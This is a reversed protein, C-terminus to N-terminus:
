ATHNCFRLFNGTSTQSIFNTHMHADCVNDAHTCTCTHTHIHTHTANVYIINLACVQLCVSFQESNNYSFQETNNYSFQLSQM